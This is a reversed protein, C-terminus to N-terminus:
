KSPNRETTTQCNICNYLDEDPCRIFEHGLREYCDPCLPRESAIDVEAGCLHCRIDTVSHKTTGHKYAM